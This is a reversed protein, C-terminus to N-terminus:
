QFLLHFYDSLPWIARIGRIDTPAAVMQAERKCKRQPVLNAFEVIKLLLTTMLEVSAFVYLCCIQLSQHVLGQQRQRCGTDLTKNWSPIRVTHFLIKWSLTIPPKWCFTTGHHSSQKTKSHFQTKQCFHHPKLSFIRKYFFSMM